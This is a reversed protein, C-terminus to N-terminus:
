ASTNDWYRERASRAKENNAFRSQFFNFVAFEEITMVYSGPQDMIKQWVQALAAELIYSIIPISEGDPIERAIELTLPVDGCKEHETYAITTVAM